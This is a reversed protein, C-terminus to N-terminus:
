NLTLILKAMFSQTLPELYQALTYKAYKLKLKIVLDGGLYDKPTFPQLFKTKKKPDWSVLNTWKYNKYNKKRSDIIVNKKQQYFKCLNSKGACVMVGSISFSKCKSFTHYVRNKDIYNTSTASSKM